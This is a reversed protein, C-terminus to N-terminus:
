AEGALSPTPAVPRWARQGWIAAGLCAIAGIGVAARPGAVDAIWGVIPGGIPTTGLFVMSQLALVRGRFSPDGLIQILATSSTMFGMAGLGCVLAAVFALGLNPAVAVGLMGVGFLFTSGIV